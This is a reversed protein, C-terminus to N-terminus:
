PTISLEIVNNIGGGDEWMGAYDTTRISETGLGGSQSAPLVTVLSLCLSFFYYYYYYYYYYHSSCLRGRTIDLIFFSCRARTTCSCGLGAGVPLALDAPHLLWDRLRLRFDLILLHNDSHFDINGRYTESEPPRLLLMPFGILFDCIDTHCVTLVEKREDQEKLVGWRGKENEKGLLLM